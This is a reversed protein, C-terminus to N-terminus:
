RVARQFVAWPILFTSVEVRSHVQPPLFRSDQFAVRFKSLDHLELAPATRFLRMLLDRSKPVVFQLFYDFSGIRITAILPQVPPLSFVSVSAAFAAALQVTSSHDLFSRHFPHPLLDTRALLQVLSAFIVVKVRARTCPSLNYYSTRVQWFVGAGAWVTSTFEYSPSRAYVMRTAMQHEALVRQMPLTVTRPLAM